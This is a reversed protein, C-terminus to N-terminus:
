RVPRACRSTACLPIRRSLLEEIQMAARQGAKGDLALFFVKNAQRRQDSKEEPKQLSQKIALHIERFDDIQLSIDGIISAVEASSRHAQPVRFTIIPKDLACFEAIISSTDAVMVDALVLYPLVDKDALFRVEPTQQIVKVFRRSTWPHVTVLINYEDALEGLRTYWRGIASMGSRDWTASFLVVPKGPDVSIQKRFADLHERSYSGDFAPDLKPFGAAKACRIGLREALEVERESTMLYLDFANYREAKIFEKFHYAGHRLGIKVIRPEPFKHLAHRAMVVAQPFAPWLTSAVDHRALEDRVKRNKAVVAAGPLHKHVPALAVYDLYDACYLVLRPSRGLKRQLHWWARYPYRILCQSLVM